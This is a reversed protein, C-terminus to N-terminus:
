LPVTPRSALRERLQNDIFKRVGEPDNLVEDNKVRVLEIGFWRILSYRRADYDQTEPSEHYPGDVEVGLRAAHCYFDLIYQGVVHQRRFRIPFARLISWLAEEAPTPSRRNDKAYRRLQGVRAPGHLPASLADGM